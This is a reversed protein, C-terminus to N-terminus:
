VYTVSWAYLCAAVAPVGDGAAPLAISLSSL